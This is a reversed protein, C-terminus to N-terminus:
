IQVLALRAVAGGGFSSEITAAGGHEEAVQRVIALGLGSGPLGRASRARYFRDFVYPLDAEDIGPGRDRVEVQGARVDVDVVAGSPNWKAANDLLNLVARELRSRVGLVTTEELRAAFQTQPTRRRARELADAVVLDLRVPEQEEAPEYGRALEVLEAVLATMEDLQDTVDCLLAERDGPPMSDSRALVEINTRLSTLPTRLEHSADAVLQRQSHEARELAVMMSNFSTALRSVEDHGGVEIREALDGTVAVREAANTLRRVPALVRGSVLLALAAAGGVGAIGIGGLFLKLRGLVAETEELSRATQVVYGNELRTTFLRVPMGAVDGDEFVASRRGDLVSVAGSTV